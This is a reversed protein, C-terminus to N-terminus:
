ESLPDMYEVENLRGIFHDTWTLYIRGADKMALIGKELSNLDEEDAGQRRLDDLKQEFLHNLTEMANLLDQRSQEVNGPM